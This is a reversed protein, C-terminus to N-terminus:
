FAMLIKVATIDFAWRSAKEFGKLVAQSFESDSASGMVPFDLKPSTERLLLRILWIAAGFLAVVAIKYGSMARFQILSATNEINPM